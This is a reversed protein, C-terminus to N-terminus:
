FYFYAPASKGPGRCEPCIDINLQANYSDNLDPDQNTYGTICEHCYAHPVTPVVDHVWVHCESATVNERCLSCFVLTGLTKDTKFNLIENLYRTVVPGEILEILSESRTLDTDDTVYNLLATSGALQDISFWRKKIQPTSISHECLRFEIENNHLRIGDITKNELGPDQVLFDEKPGQHQERWHRCSSRRDISLACEPCWRCESSKYFKPIKFGNFLFMKVVPFTHCFLM